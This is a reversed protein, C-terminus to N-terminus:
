CILDFAQLQRVYEAVGEEVRSFSGSYDGNITLETLDAQTYSQYKGQLADPFPIYRIEGSTIREAVPTDKGTLTNIVATAVENFSQCQGTGVNFIGSNEPHSLFHLNVQVVDDVWVFDRRQEGDGYGGSGEFLNVYGQDLFQNYFRWAVSAMHGKHAEGRGYINFYRLGVVQSSVDGLRKRVYRDFLLKSYAYANLASEYEPSERFVTGAGYVSGSSAYIFPIGNNAAYHLLSKSYDYNNEMIYQGDREMTDSCAGQHFIASMGDFEIGKDLRSIFEDKDMYDEIDCDQINVVQDGNSLDDVVLINDLGRENLGRVLNSGIFGTGGTVIIM